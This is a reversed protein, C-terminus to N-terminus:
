NRLIAEVKEVVGPFITSLKGLVIQSKKVPVGLNIREFIEAVDSYPKEDVNFYSILINEPGFIIWNTL